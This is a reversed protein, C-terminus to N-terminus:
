NKSLGVCLHLTSKWLICSGKRPFNLFLGSALLMYVINHVKTTSYISGTATEVDQAGRKHPQLCWSACNCFFNACNYYLHGQKSSCGGGGGMKLVWGAWSQEAASLHGFVVSSYLITIEPLPIHAGGVGM